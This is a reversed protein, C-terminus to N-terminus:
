KVSFIFNTVVRTRNERPNSSAHWTNSDFLIAKGKKPSVRKRITLPKKDAHTENFIFTDGDSDKVYYLLSKMPPSPIDVHPTNYTDPDIQKQVLLNAKMREVAGLQLGTKAELFYFMPFVIDFFASRRASEEFFAHVFQDSDYSKASKSLIEPASPDNTSANYQWLFEGSKCIMDEIINAYSTPLFDEIELIEGPPKGMALSSLM